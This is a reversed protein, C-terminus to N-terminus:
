GIPQKADIRCAPTGGPLRYRWRVILRYTAAALWSFPPLLIVMGLGRRLGGDAILVRGIARHGRERLGHDTVWWAASRVDDRTLRHQDLFSDDLFQWAIAREGHRFRREAWQAVTTCFGCDGDFILTVDHGVYDDDIQNTTGIGVVTLM